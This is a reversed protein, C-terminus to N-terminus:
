QTVGVMTDSSNTFLRARLAQAAIDAAEASDFSGGYYNKGQLTAEARWRNCDTRRIVGRIGSKSAMTAGARNEANQQVTVARLHSPNVCANVHCIHDIVLGNIADGQILFVSIRHARLVLGRINLVGYGWATAGTWLWCEDEGRVDVKSWFRKIDSETLRIDRTTLSSM